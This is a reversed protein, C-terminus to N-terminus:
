LLIGKRIKSWFSEEKKVNNETNKDVIKDKKEEIKRSVQKNEFYENMEKELLLTYTFSNGYIEASNYCIDMMENFDNINQIVQCGASYREVFELIKYKSARHINIYFIGKEFDPGYDLVSDKNNDRYVTVPKQQRLATYNRHRGIKWAGLYQGEKLIATGNVKGPNNLWYKGPDTTMPYVNHVWVFDKKYIINMWDDFKNSSRNENRIGILNVNYEGDEFVKFGKHKMFEFIQERTFM